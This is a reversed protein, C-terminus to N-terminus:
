SWGSVNIGFNGKAHVIDDDKMNSHIPHPASRSFKELSSEKSITESGKEIVRFKAASQGLPTELM